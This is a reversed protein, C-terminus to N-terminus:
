GPPRVPRESRNLYEVASAVAESLVEPDSKPVPPPALNDMDFAVHRDVMDRPVEIYVPKRYARCVELVRDIEAM